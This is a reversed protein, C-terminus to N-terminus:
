QVVPPIAISDVVPIEDDFKGFGPKDKFTKALTSFYNNFQKLSNTKKDIMTVELYSIMAGSKMEGGYFIINEWINGKGSLLDKYDETEKTQISGLIKQLDIFGGIPHGNIKSIFPHDTTKGAAFGDVNEQSNGAILWNDKVTYKMKDLDETGQQKSIEKKLVDAIKDFSAKDNISTAFLIKAEPEPSTMSMTMSDTGIDFTKEIDKVSFDSVAFMMDGKMAKVIDDVSIGLMSMLGNIIGDVGVLQLFEKLIEPPYKMAFAIAVDKGPIKKLMDTNLNGAKYKNMLKSIDKNFWSKATASIKGDEFTLSYGSSNDKLLTTADFLGGMGMPLSQQVLSSSNVWFHMDGKDNILSAFHSNNGISKSKKLNYLGKAYNLVSDMNIDSEENDGYYDEPMFDSSHGIIIFRENNWTYLGDKDGAYNINGDKKLERNDGAKTIMTEYAKVDKLKGQFVVYSTKGNIHVSLYMDNKMDIGSNEPDELLKKEFDDPNGEKSAMLFWESNKIEDWSLKSSLSAANIHYVMAADEPILVDVSKKGCSSIIIVLLSLSLLNKIIARMNSLNKGTEKISVPQSALIIKM